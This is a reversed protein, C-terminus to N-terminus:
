RIRTYVVVKEAGKSAPAPAPAAQKAADGADDHCRMTLKRSTARYDCKVNHAGHLELSTDSASVWGNDVAAGDMRLLAFRADSRVGISVLDDGFAASQWTGILADLGIRVEPERSHLTTAAAVDAPPNPENACAAKLLNAEHRFRCARVVHSAPGIRVVSKDQPDEAYPLRAFSCMSAWSGENLWNTEVTGDTFFEFELSCYTPTGRPDNPGWLKKAHWTTALTPGVWWGTLTEPPPPPPKPAGCAALLLLVGVGAVVRNRCV